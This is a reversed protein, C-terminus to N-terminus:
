VIDYAPSLSPTKGDAYLIAWNKLHADGNGVLVNLVIRDIVESVADAGCLADVLVAILEFNAKKYKADKNSTSIELVQALEEMHVRVDDVRRDFRHVALAQGNSKAAWDELGKVSRPSVLFGEATEIGASRALRLCGLEAEPVNDFGPRGYPFKLIVNGAIGTAPVTLGRDEAGYVSFKLQVGDLSFKLLPDEPNTGDEPETEIPMALKGERDTPIARLAGPLDSGGLRRLLDFENKDNTEAAQAVAQRLRGEPLLHSFWTPLSVRSTPRWERGHEEFVQGMVPRNPLDWYGDDFQFWTRNNATHLYGTDVWAGSPLQLQVLLTEEKM